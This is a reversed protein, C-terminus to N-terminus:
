SIGLKQYLEFLTRVESEWNYFRLAALRGREGMLQADDPNKIMWNM